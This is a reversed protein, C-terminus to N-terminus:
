LSPMLVCIWDSQVGCPNIWDTGTVRDFIQESETVAHESGCARVTEGNLFWAPGGPRGDRPVDFLEAPTWIFEAALSGWYYLFQDAANIAQLWNPV